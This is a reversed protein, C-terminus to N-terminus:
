GTGDIKADSFAGAVVGFRFTVVGLLGTKLRYMMGTFFGHHKGLFVATGVARDGALSGPKMPSPSPEHVAAVDTLIILKRSSRKVQSCMEIDSGYNGYREDIQRLARLFFSRFMMAAGSVCEATIEGTGEAARFGPDPMAPTPLSRAQPTRQGAENTLLPCVAGVDQRAELFDTLQTVAAETVITDDHLFLIYEGDAARVGINLAKTLGFNKPLRIFRAAPFDQELSASADTSGNDIVLIQHEDGLSELSKRLKDARNFSVIVVSTRKKQQEPQPENLEPDPTL